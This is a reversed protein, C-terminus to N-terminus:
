AATEPAKIKMLAKLVGEYTEVTCSGGKEIRDFFKGDNAAKTAVTSRSYGTRKVCDQAASLLTKRYDM